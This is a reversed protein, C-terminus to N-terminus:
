TSRPSCRFTVGYRTECFQKIATESGPEQAGFQNCPLRTRRVRARPLHRVAGAPGCLAPTLGCQSAVNVVLLVNGAYDRLPQEQGDITRATVDYITTMSRQHCLFPDSAVSLASRCFEQVLFPGFAPKV